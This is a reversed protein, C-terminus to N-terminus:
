RAPIKLAAHLEQSRANYYDIREQDTKGHMLEYNADRIQRVMEVAKIETTHEDKM